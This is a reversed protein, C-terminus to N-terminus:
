YGSPRRARRGPDRSGVSVGPKSGRGGSGWTAAKSCFQEYCGLGTLNALQFIHEERKPRAGEPDTGKSERLRRAAFYRNRGINSM